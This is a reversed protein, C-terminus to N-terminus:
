SIQTVEEITCFDFDIEPASGFQKRRENVDTVFYRLRQDLKEKLEEAECTVIQGYRFGEGDM